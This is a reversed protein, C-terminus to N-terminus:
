GKENEKETGRMESLIEKEERWRQRERRKESDAGSERVRGGRESERESRKAIDIDKREGKRM